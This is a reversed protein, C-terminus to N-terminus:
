QPGDASQRSMTAEMVAKAYGTPAQDPRVSVGDLRAGSRHSAAWDMIEELTTSPAFAGSTQTV